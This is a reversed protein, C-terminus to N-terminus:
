NVVVLASLTLISVRLTKTHGLRDILARLAMTDRMFRLPSPKLERQTLPRKM